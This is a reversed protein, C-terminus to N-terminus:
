LVLRRGAQGTIFGRRRRRPRRRELGDSQPPGLECKFGRAGEGRDLPREGGISTERVKLAAGHEFRMLDSVDGTMSIVTELVATAEELVGDSEFRSLGGEQLRDLDALVVHCPTRVLHLTRSVFADFLEASRKLEHVM